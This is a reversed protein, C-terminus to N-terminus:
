HINGRPPLLPDNGSGDILDLKLFPEKRPRVEYTHM